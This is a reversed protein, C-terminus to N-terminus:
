QLAHTRPRDVFLLPARPQNCSPISLDHENCRLMTPLHSSTTLSFQEDGNTLKRHVQITLLLFPLWVGTAEGVQSCPVRAESATAFEPGDSSAVVHVRPFDKRSLMREEVRGRPLAYQEPRSEIRWIIREETPM